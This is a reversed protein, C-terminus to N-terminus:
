KHIKQTLVENNKLIEDVAKAFGDQTVPLTVFCANEKVNPMANGVAVALGGSEKILKLMSIDNEADGFTAAHKLDINLVESLKKIANGKTATASSIDVYGVGAIDVKYNPFNKKFHSQILKCKQMDPEYIAIKSIYFDKGFDNLSKIVIVSCGNYPLVFPETSYQKGNFVMYLHSTLNNQKKFDSFDDFINKVVDGKIYDEHITEGKPNIIQAGQLLVFYTNNNGVSHAIEQIENPARGTVLILPINNSKLKKAACVVSQPTRPQSGDNGLPVITGDIDTFVINIKNKYNGVLNDIPKSEVPKSLTNKCYESRCSSESAVVSTSNFYLNLFCAFVIPLYLIKKM